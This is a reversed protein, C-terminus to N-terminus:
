LHFFTDAWGTKVARRLKGANGEEDRVKFTARKERSAM